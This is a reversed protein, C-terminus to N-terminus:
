RNSVVQEAHLDESIDEIETAMMKEDQTLSVTVEPKPAEAAKPKVPEDMSEMDTEEDLSDKEDADQVDSKPANEGATPKDEAKTVGPAPKHRLADWDIDVLHSVESTDKFLAVKVRYKQIAGVQAPTIEGKCKIMMQSMIKSQLTSKDNTPHEKLFEDFTGPKNTYTARILVLCSELQKRRDAAAKRREM